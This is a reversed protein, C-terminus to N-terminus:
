VGGIEGDQILAEVVQAVGDEANSPAIKDARAKVEDVANAM